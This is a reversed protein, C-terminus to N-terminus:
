PQEASTARGVERTRLCLVARQAGLEVEPRRAVCVDTVFECRPAFACERSAGHLVPPTGPVSVIREGEKEFGPEARLLAISYPHAPRAFIDQSRGVEVVRGAYMIAVRDCRASVARLDHSLWVLGTRNEGTVEIMLNLIDTRVSADLATTPEDAILLRPKGIMAMAISVRQAM